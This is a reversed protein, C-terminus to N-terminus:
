KNRSNKNNAIFLLKNFVNVIVIGILGVMALGLSPMIIGPLDQFKKGDIKRMTLGSILFIISNLFAM